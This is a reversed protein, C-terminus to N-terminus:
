HTIQGFRGSNFDAVTKSIEQETNMVFPGYGVIPENLSEGSLLLVLADTDAAISLTAEGDLMVLEADQALTNGNIRVRGHLVVLASNWGPTLAIEISHNKNM